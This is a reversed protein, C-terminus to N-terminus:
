DNDKVNESCFLLCNFSEEYDETPCSPFLFKTWGESKLDYEKYFPQFIRLKRIPNIQDNKNYSLWYYFTDCGVLHTFSREVKLHNKYYDNALEHEAQFTAM